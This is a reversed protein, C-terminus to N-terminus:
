MLALAIKMTNVDKIAEKMTLQSQMGNDCELGFTCDVWCDCNLCVIHCM